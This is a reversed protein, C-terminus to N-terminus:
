QQFRQLWTLCCDNVADVEVLENRGVGVELPAPSKKYNEVEQSPRQRDHLDDM